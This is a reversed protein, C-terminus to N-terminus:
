VAAFGFLEAEAIGVAAHRLRVSLQCLIKQDFTSRGSEEEHAIMDGRSRLSVGKICLMVGRSCSTRFEVKLFQCMLVNIILVNVLKSM